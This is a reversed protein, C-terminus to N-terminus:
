YGRAGYGCSNSGCPNCCDTQRCERKWFYKPTYRVQPECITRTVCKCDPVDYYEPCCRYRTECYYQPVYTCRQVQYPVQVYRCCKRTCPVQEQVCRTTTYYCPQYRVYRCYCEGCPQECCDQSPCCDMASINQAAFISFVSAGILFLKKM